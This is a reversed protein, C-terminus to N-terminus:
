KPNKKLGKSKRLLQKPNKSHVKIKMDRKGEETVRVQIKIDRIHLECKSNDRKSIVM